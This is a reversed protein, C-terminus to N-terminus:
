WCCRRWCRWCRWASWSGGRDAAPPKRQRRAPPWAADARRIGRRRAADPARTVVVAVAAPDLGPVSGAVLKQVDGEPLPPPRRAGQAAGRRARRDAAQGAGPRRRASRDGGAGPARAREGRRGRDRAHARDRRGAGGPLARTGESATPILSPQGYVEAFGHRRDRPLGSRRLLDLASGADRRAIRVTFTTPEGRRREERDAIGARELAAITENAAGEDLGHLLNPRARRWASRSCWRWRWGSGPRGVEDDNGDDAMAARLLQIARAHLRCAWSKSLGM